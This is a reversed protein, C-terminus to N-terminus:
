GLHASLIIISLLEATHLVNSPIICTHVNSHETEEKKATYHEIYMCTHLERLNVDEKNTVACTNYITKMCVELSATNILKATEIDRDDRLRWLVELGQGLPTAVGPADSQMTLLM